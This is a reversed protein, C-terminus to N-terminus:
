QQTTQMRSSQTPRTCPWVTMPSCPICSPSLVCHQPDAFHLHQKRGEGGSLPGDLLGPCMQVPPILGLAELKIILKSPVINNFASFYDIFATHLTTTIADDTSRNPRYAFQLPDLTVPLTSTVHDKVPREFCKMIVSTLAIPRYNNLETVKANKPVPVITAM